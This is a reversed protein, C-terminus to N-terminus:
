VNYYQGQSFSTLFNKTKCGICCDHVLHIHSKLDKASSSVTVSVNQGSREMIKVPTYFHLIHGQNKVGLQRQHVRTWSGLLMVPFQFHMLLTTLQGTYGVRWMQHLKTWVVRLAWCQSIVVLLHTKSLQTCTVHQFMTARAVNSLQSLESGTLDLITSPGWIKL